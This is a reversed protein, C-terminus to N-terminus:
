HIASPHLPPVGPESCLPTLSLCPHPIPFCPSLALVQHHQACGTLGWGHSLAAPLCACLLHMSCALNQSGGWIGARWGWYFGTGHLFTVLIGQLLM